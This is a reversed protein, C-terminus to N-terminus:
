KKDIFGTFTELLRMNQIMRMQRHINLRKQKVIESARDRASQMKMLRAATLALQTELLIRRFLLTRIHDRFFNLLVPLDPEFIYDFQMKETIDGTQAYHTMDTVVAKQEFSNVFFPHIVKVDGYMRVDEIIDAIEKSSPQEKEFVKEHLTNKKLEEDYSLAQVGTQGIVMCAGNNDQEFISNKLLTIVQTNVNGYFRRNATLAIYMQKKNTETSVGSKKAHYKILSMLEHLDNYYLVNKEYAVRISQLKTASIDRLMTTVFQATETQQLDSRLEKIKSM